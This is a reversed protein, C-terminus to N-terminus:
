NFVEMMFFDLMLINADGWKKSRKTTFGKINITEITQKKSFSTKLKSINQVFDFRLVRMM